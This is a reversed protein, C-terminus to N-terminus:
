KSNPKQTKHKERFIMVSSDKDILPVVPCSVTQAFDDVAKRIGQWHPNYDHVIIVGGPALRPYFFELGAKTPNYLDADMNVLAFQEHEVIKATKSFCGVHFVFSAGTLKRQVSVLSTDAFHHRTYTAAEGEEASLDRDTFGSFTDFLHFTRKKDMLHLVYASDGKYVGLEAFAGPIKDKKLRETQFWFNFFRGKDTYQHLAKLLESSIKAQKRAEKWTKPGANREKAFSWFYYVGYLWLVAALFYEIYIFLNEM